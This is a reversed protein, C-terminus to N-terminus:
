PTPCEGCKSDLTVTFCDDVISGDDDRKYIEFSGPPLAYETIHTRWSPVSGAGVLSPLPHGLCHLYWFTPGFRQWLIIHLVFFANRCEPHDVFFAELDDSTICDGPSFRGRILGFCTLMCCLSMQFTAGAIQMAALQNCMDTLTTGFLSAMGNCLVTYQDIVEQIFWVPVCTQSYPPCTFGVTNPPPYNGSCKDEPIGVTSLNIPCTYCLQPENCIVPEVRVATPVSYTRYRGKFTITPM